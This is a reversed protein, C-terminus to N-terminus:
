LFLNALPGWFLASDWLEIANRWPSLRQYDRSITILDFYFMIFYITFQPLVLQLGTYCFYNLNLKCWTSFMTRIDEHPDVRFFREPLAKM